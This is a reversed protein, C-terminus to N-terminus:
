KSAPESLGRWAPPLQGAIVVAHGQGAWSAPRGNLCGKHVGIGEDYSVIDGGVLVVAGIIHSM